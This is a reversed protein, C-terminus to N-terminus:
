FATSNNAIVARDSGFVQYSATLQLTSGSPAILTEELQPLSKQLSTGAGLTVSEDNAKDQLAQDRYNQMLAIQAPDLAALGAADYLANCSARDKLTFSLAKLNATLSPM